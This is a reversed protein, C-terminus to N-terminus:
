TTSVRKTPSMMFLLSAMRVGTTVVRSQGLDNKGQQTGFRCNLPKGMKSWLAFKSTLESPVSTATWTLTM